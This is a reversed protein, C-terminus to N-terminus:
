SDRPHPKLTVVVLLTTHASIFQRALLYDAVAAILTRGSLLSEVEAAVSTWPPCNAVDENSIGHIKRVFSTIPKEPKVLWSRVDNGTAGDDVTLLAVLHSIM